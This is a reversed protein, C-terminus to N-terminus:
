ESSKRPSGVQCIATSWPYWRGANVVLNEVSGEVLNEVLNELAASGMGRTARSSCGRGRAKEWSLSHNISRM